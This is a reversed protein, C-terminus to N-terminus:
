LGNKRRRADLSVRIVSARFRLTEPKKMDITVLGLIEVHLFVGFAWRPFRLRLVVM